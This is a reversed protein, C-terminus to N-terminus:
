ANATMKPSVKRGRIPGQQSNPMVWAVKPNVRVLDTDRYGSHITETGPEYFTVDAADVDEFLWWQGKSDQWYVNNM